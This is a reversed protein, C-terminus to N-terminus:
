PLMSAPNTGIWIVSLTTGQMCFSSEVPAGCVLIDDGTKFGTLDGVLTFLEGSESRLAQCEVGEDTLRGFVCRSEFGKSLVVVGPNRAGLVRVGQLGEPKPRMVLEAQIPRPDGVPGTAPGEATFDFGFIGGPPPLPGLLPELRPDTWGEGRVTGHATIALQAPNSKLIAVKISDVGLVRERAM